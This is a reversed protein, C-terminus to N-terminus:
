RDQNTHILSVATESSLELVKLLISSYTTHPIQGLAERM